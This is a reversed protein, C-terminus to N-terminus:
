IQQHIWGTIFDLVGPAFIRRGDSILQLQRLAPWQSELQYNGLESRTLAHTAQPWLVVERDRYDTDTHSTVRGDTLAEGYVVIEHRADVNLDDAGWIALVPNTMAALEATSDERYNWAFFGFRDESVPEDTTTTALYAAYDAPPGFITADEARGAAIQADIEAEPIGERQMRIRGFYDGQDQWNSVGGVIVFPTEEGAQAAVKPLVSGAQSFGVFGITVKTASRVAELAALAEEARDGMSQDLWNGSSKAVGPKDWSFVSIGADNFAHILPSYGDGNLRDTPGDGHVFLVVPASTDGNPMFLSGSLTARETAFTLEVSNEPAEFDGVGRFQWVLVGLVIVLLAAVGRRLTRRRNTRTKQARM